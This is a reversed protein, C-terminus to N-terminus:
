SAFVVILWDESLYRRHQLANKALSALRRCAWTEHYLVDHSVNVKSYKYLKRVEEILVDITPIQLEQAKMRLHLPRLPIRNMRINQLTKEVPQDTLLGTGPDYHMILHHGDRLRDRVQDLNDWERALGELSYGFARDREGAGHPPVVLPGEM